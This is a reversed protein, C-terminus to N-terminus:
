EQCFIVKVAPLQSFASYSTYIQFSNQVNTGQISNSDNHKFRPIKGNDRDGQVIGVVDILHLKGGRMLPCM